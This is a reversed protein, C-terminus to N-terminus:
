YKRWDTCVGPWDGVYGISRCDADAPDYFTQATRKKYLGDFLAGRDSASEKDITHIVFVSIMYAILTIIIVGAILASNKNIAADSKCSTIRQNDGAELFTILNVYQYDMNEDIFNNVQSKFEGMGRNLEASGNSLTNAGNALDESGQYLGDAGESLEVSGSYASEVGNTYARLGDKFAKYSDLQAKMTSLAIVANADSGGITKILSDIVSSYNDGTVTVTMGINAFESNVQAVM